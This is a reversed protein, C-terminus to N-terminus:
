AVSPTPETLKQVTTKITRNTIPGITHWAHQKTNQIQPAHHEYRTNLFDMQYHHRMQLM